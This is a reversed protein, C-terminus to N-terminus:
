GVIFDTQQVRPSAMAGIIKLADQAGRLQALRNSLKPAIIESYRKQGDEIDKDSIEPVPMPSSEVAGIFDMNGDLIKARFQQMGLGDADKMLQRIEQHKLLNILEQIDNSPTPISEKLTKEGQLIEDNFGATVIANIQSCTSLKLEQKLQELHESTYLKMGERDLPEYKQAYDKEIAEIRSKLHDLKKHIDSNDSQQELLKEISVKYLPDM